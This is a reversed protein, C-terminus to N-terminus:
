KINNQNIKSSIFAFLGRKYKRSVNLFFLVHLKWAKGLLKPCFQISLQKPQIISKM